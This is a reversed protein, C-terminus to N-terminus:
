RMIDYLMPAAKPLIKGGNTDSLNSPGSFVVMAMFMKVNVATSAMQSGAPALEMSM